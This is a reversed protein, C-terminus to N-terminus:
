VQNAVQMPVREGKMRREAREMGDLCQEQAAYLSRHLSVLEITVHKSLEGQSTLIEDAKREAESM